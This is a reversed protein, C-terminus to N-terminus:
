DQPKLRFSRATAWFAPAYNAHLQRSVQGQMIYYTREAFAIVQYVYVPQRSGAEVATAVIEWAPLGGIRLAQEKEIKIDAVDATKELRARSFAAHDGVELESLSPGVVFM